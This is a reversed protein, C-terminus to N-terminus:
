KSDTIKTNIFNDQKKKKLFFLTKEMESDREEDVYILNVRPIQKNNFYWDFEMNIKNLLKSNGLFESYCDYFEMLLTENKISEYKKRFSTLLEDLFNYEKQLISCIFRILVQLNVDKQFKYDFNLLFKLLKIEKEIRINLYVLGKFESTCNSIFAMINTFNHPKFYILQILYRDELFMLMFEILSINLQHLFCQRENEFLIKKKDVLNSLKQTLDKKLQGLDESSVWDLSLLYYTLLKGLYSGNAKSITKLARSDFDSREFGLYIKRM